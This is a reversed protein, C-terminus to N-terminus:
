LLEESLGEPYRLTSAKLSAAAESLRDLTQERRKEAEFVARIAQSHRELRETMKAISPKLQAIESKIGELDTQQLDLRGSVQDQRDSVAVSLDLTEKRLEELINERSSYRQQIESIEGALREYTDSASRALNQQEEIIGALRDFRSQMESVRELVGSLREDHERVALELSHKEQARRHELQSVASVVAQSVSQALGTLVDDAAPEAPREPLPQPGPAPAAAPQASWSPRAAAEPQRAAEPPKTNVAAEQLQQRMWEGSLEELSEPAHSGVSEDAV